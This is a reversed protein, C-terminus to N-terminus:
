CEWFIIIGQLSKIQFTGQMSELQVQNMQNVLNALDQDGLNDLGYGQLNNNVGETRTMENRLQLVETSVEKLQHDKRQERGQM